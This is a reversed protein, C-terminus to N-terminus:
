AKMEKELYDKMEEALKQELPKWESDDMENRNHSDAVEKKVSSNIIEHANNIFGRIAYKVVDVMFPTVKYSLPYDSGSIASLKGEEKLSKIFWSLVNFYEKYREDFTGESKFMVKSHYMISGMSASMSAVYKKIDDKSKLELLPKGKRSITATGDSSVEMRAFGFEDAFSENFSDIINDITFDSTFIKSFANITASSVRTINRIASGYGFASLVSKDVEKIELEDANEKAYEIARDVHDPVGERLKADPNFLIQNINAVAATLTEGYSPIIETIRMIRELTDRDDKPLDAIDDAEYKNDYKVFMVEVLDDSELTEFYSTKRFVNAIVREIGNTLQKLEPINAIAGKFAQNNIFYVGSDPEATDLQKVYQSKEERTEKALKKIEPSLEELSIIACMLSIFPQWATGIAWSMEVQDFSDFGALTDLADEVDPRIKEPFKISAKSGSATPYKENFVDNLKELDFSANGGQMMESMIRISVIQRNSTNDVDIKTSADFVMDMFEKMSGASSDFLRSSLPYDYFLSINKNAFEDFYAQQAAVVTSISKADDSPMIMSYFKKYINTINEKMDEKLGDDKIGKELIKKANEINEKNNAIIAGANSFLKVFLQYYLYMFFTEIYEDYWVAESGDDKKYDTKKAFRTLYKRNELTFTPNQVSLLGIFKEYTFGRSGFFRSIERRRDSLGKSPNLVKSITARKLGASVPGKDFGSDLLENIM